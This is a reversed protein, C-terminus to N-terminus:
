RLLLFPDRVLADDSHPPLGARSGVFAMAAARVQLACYVHRAQWLSAGSSGEKLGMGKKGGRKTTTSSQQHQSDSNSTFTSISGLAVGVVHMGLANAVTLAKGIWFVESDRLGASANYGCMGVEFVGKVEVIQTPAVGASSSSNEFRGVLLAIKGCDVKEFTSVNRGAVLRQFVIETGERHIVQLNTDAPERTVKVLSAREKELDALTYRRRSSKKGSTHANMTQRMPGNVTSTTNTKSTIDILDGNRIGYEALKNVNNTAALFDCRYEGVHVHDTASPVFAGSLRIKECLDAVSSDNGM